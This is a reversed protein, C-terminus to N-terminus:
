RPSGINRSSRDPSHTLTAEGVDTTAPSRVLRSRTTAVLGRHRSCRPRRETIQRSPRTWASGAPTFAPEHLTGSSTSPRRLSSSPVSRRSGFGANHGHSAVSPTESAATTNNSSLRALSSAPRAATDSARIADAADNTIATANENSAYADGPVHIALKSSNNKRAIPTHNRSRPGSRQRPNAAIPTPRSAIATPILM